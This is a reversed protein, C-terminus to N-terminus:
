PTGSTNKPRNWGRVRVHDIYERGPLWGLKRLIRNIRTGEAGKANKLEIKLANEAVQTVTVFDGAKTKEVMESMQETATSANEPKKGSARNKESLYEAIKQFWIDEEYRADQEIVALGHEAEGDIHWREGAEIRALAEAFWQGREQYVTQLDIPRLVKLPWFRRGGTEDRLYDDRNTTGVFICRRLNKRYGEFLPRLEDSQASIFAKIEEVEHKRMGSLEGIEFIAPGSHILRISEVDLHIRNLTDSFYAADPLLAQFFSSKRFGQEGELILMTDCKCGPWLIRAVLSKFWLPGVTRAWATDPTGAIRQFVTDLRPVGDWTGRLQLVQQQLPDFTNQQAVSLIASQLDDRSIKGSMQATSQFWLSLLTRDHSLDLNAGNMHKTPPKRLYVPRNTRSNYGFVNRWAPHNELYLFINADTALPRGQDNIAVSRTWTSDEGGVEEVGIANKLDEVTVAFDTEDPFWERISDHFHPLIEERNCQPWKKRILFMVDRYVNHRTGVEGIKEGNLAAAMHIGIEQSRKSKKRSLEDAYDKLEELTPTYAAAALLKDQAPTQQQVVQTLKRPSAQVFSPDIGNDRWQYCKGSGHVSPAVLIFGGDGKVDVADGLIPHGALTPIKAVGAPYQYVLHMGGGGTTASLTGIDNWSLGEKTMWRQIDGFGDKTGGVDLDIAFMRSVAGTRVGINVGNYMGYQDFFERFVNYGQEPTEMERQKWGCWPHKGPRDPNCNNWRKGTALECSCLKRGKDDYGGTWRHIPQIVWGMKFAYFEAWALIDQPSPLAIGDPATTM